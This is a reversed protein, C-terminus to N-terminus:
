QKEDKDILMSFEKDFTECADKLAQEFAYIQELQEFDVKHVVSGKYPQYPYPDDAKLIELEGTDLFHHPVVMLFKLNPLTLIYDALILEGTKENLLLDM